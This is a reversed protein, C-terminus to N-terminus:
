SKKFVIKNDGDSPGMIKVLDQQSVDNELKLNIKAIKKYSNSEHDHNTRPYELKVINNDPSEYYYNDDQQEKSIEDLLKLGDHLYNDIMQFYGDRDKQSLNNKKFYSQIVDKIQMCVSKMGEFQKKMQLKVKELTTTVKVNIQTGSQHQVRDAETLKDEIKKIGPLLRIQRLIYNALDWDTGRAPDKQIYKYLQQYTDVSQNEFTFKQKKRFNVGYSHSNKNM